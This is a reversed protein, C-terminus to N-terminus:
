SFVSHIAIVVLAVALTVVAIALGCFLLGVCEDQVDMGSPRNPCHECWDATKGCKLEDSM